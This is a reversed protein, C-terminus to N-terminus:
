FGDPGDVPHSTTSESHQIKGILRRYLASISLIRADIFRDDSLVNSLQELARSQDSEAPNLPSEIYAFGNDPARCIMVWFVPQRYPADEAHLTQYGRAKLSPELDSIIQRAQPVGYSMTGVLYGALYVQFVDKINFQRAYGSQRGSLPDPPLFERVWRKWRALKIGLAHSIHRSSFYIL